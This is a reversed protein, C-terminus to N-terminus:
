SAPRARPRVDLAGLRPRRGLPTDIGQSADLGTEVLQGDVNVVGRVSCARMTPSVEKVNGKVSRKGETPDVKRRETKNGTSKPVPLPRSAPTPEDAPTVWKPPPRGDDNGRAGM